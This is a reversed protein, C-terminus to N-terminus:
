EDDDAEEVKFNCFARKNKTFSMMTAWTLRNLALSGIGSFVALLGVLFLVSRLSTLAIGFGVFGILALVIHLDFIHWMSKKYGTKVASTMTKGLAYEKRAYEYTIANSVSLVAAMLMYATFTEVSLTLFPISWVCLVTAITFTLFTLLQVFGLLHYRVFFFVLMALACVGFVIYLYMLADTGYTANTKYTDGLSLVLDDEAGQLATSLVTAMTNAIEPTYSSSSIYLNDEVTESISLSIVTQDGVNFYLTNSTSTSESTTTATKESAVKKGEETFGIFVYSNGNRTEAKVESIYKTISESGKVPMIVTADTDSTGYSVTFAGTYAFYVLASQESEMEQPVFIRIAYEDQVDVRVGDEKLAAYRSVVTKVANQFGTKFEETPLNDEGVIGDNEDDGKFLYLSSGYKVYNDRYSEYDETADELQKEFKAKEKADTAEAAKQTYSDVAAKYGELNREYEKASVVGEPYYVGVYGGGLYLDDDDGYYGGLDSDKQTLSLISNFKKVNNEGYPFSVFCVFGLVAILLAYLAIFIASKIKNM